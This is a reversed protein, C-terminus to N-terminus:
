RQERRDAPGPPNAPEPPYVWATVPRAGVAPPLVPHPRRRARHRLRGAAPDGLRPRLELDDGILTNPACSDGHCVVLRDIPPVEAVQELAAAVGMGRFEEHWDALNVQGRAARRRADALRDGASWSTPCQSVPLAEHMARLGVEIATVATRPDARCRRTVAMTGAVPSTVIWGGEADRGQGLLRPVPTYAV